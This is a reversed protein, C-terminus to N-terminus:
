EDVAHGWQGGHTRVHGPIMVMGFGSARVAGGDWAGAIERAVKVNALVDGLADHADLEIGFYRALISLKLSPKLPAGCEPCVSEHHGHLGEWEHDPEISCMVPRESEPLKRAWWRALQLTDLVDGYSGPFFISKIPETRPPDGPLAYRQWRPDNCSRQIMPLDFTSINHGALRAGRWTGAGSKKLVNITAHTSVFSAFMDLGRAYQKAEEAWVEADYSNMELSEPNALEPRFHLKVEFTEIIEGIRVVRGADDIEVKCAAAAIQIIPSGACLTWPPGCPDGNKHMRVSWAPKPGRGWKEREEWQARSLIVPQAELGGAELDFFVIKQSMRGGAKRSCLSAYQAERHDVTEIEFEAWKVGLLEGGVM